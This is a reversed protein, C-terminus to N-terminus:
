ECFLILFCEIRVDDVFTDNLETLIKKLMKASNKYLTCDM